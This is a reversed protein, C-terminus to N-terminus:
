TRCARIAADGSLAIARSIGMAARKAARKDAHLACAGPRRSLKRLPYGNVELSGICM